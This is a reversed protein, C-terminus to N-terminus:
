KIVVRLVIAVVGLMLLMRMPAQITKLLTKLLGLFFNGVTSFLSLFSNGIDTFLGTFSNGIDTFIGTIGNFADGLEAFPDSM